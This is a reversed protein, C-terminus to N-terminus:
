LCTCLMLALDPASHQYSHDLCIVSITEAVMRLDIPPAVTHIVKLLVWKIVDMHLIYSNYRSM